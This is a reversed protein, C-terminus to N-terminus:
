ESINLTQVWKKITLDKLILKGLLDMYEVLKKLKEIGQYKLFSLAHIDGQPGLLSRERELDFQSEGGEKISPVRANEEYKQKKKMVKGLGLSKSITASFNM